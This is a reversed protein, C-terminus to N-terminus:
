LVGTKALFPSLWKELAAEDRLDPASVRDFLHWTETHSVSAGPALQRLPSLTEIEIFDGKTFTEFNCGLDPYTAGDEYDFIKIFLVEERVYGVWRERHSLGLKTPPTKPQPRLLFFRRGLKWRPDSLDTYTWPVIVRNPLFEKGHEGLPPQPIIEVGGPTMVTLGWTAITVPERGENTARHEILVAPSEAALSVIMEKSIRWPDSAPNKLRVASPPRLEHEVPVNDPAYTRDNEPSIWFRHGGRIQFGKEGSKGQQAENVWLANGTRPTKYSLIRPGVDLTIILEAHDNALRVNREWGAFPIIETSM